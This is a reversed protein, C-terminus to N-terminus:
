MSLSYTATEVTGANSLKTIDMHANTNYIALFHEFYRYYIFHILTRNTIAEIFKTPSFDSFDIDMDFELKDLLWVFDNKLDEYYLKETFVLDEIIKKLKSPNIIDIMYLAAIDNCYAYNIYTHFHQNDRFSRKRITGFTYVQIKKKCFEAM